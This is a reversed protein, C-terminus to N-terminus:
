AIYSELRNRRPSKQLQVLARKEIQRVRERSLNYRAGIEKLTLPASDGLGYRSRIVEATRKCLNREIAEELEDRLISNLAFDSPAKSNEDIILDKVSSSNEHRLAPDDLSLTEQGIKMLENIKEPSAELINAIEQIEAEHSHNSECQVDQQVEQRMRDIVSLENIKNCPLRIMRGRENIARIIAQRIWWVAYTIFRYGKEVNFHSIANILGINGESILDELPLGKGQYRKAVSIVFRLNSNVLRERAAANGKAALSAYKIEDCKSLLPIENIEELYMNLANKEYKRSENESYDRKVKKTEM